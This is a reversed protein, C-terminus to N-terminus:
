AMALKTLSVATGCRGRGLFPLRGDAPRLSPTAVCNQSASSRRAKMDPASPSTRAQGAQPQGCAGVLSLRRRHRLSANPGRACHAKRSARWPLQIPRESWRAHAQCGLRENHKRLNTITLWAPQQFPILKRKLSSVCIQSLKLWPQSLLRRDPGRDRSLPADFPPGSLNAPPSPVCCLLRRRIKPVRDFTPVRLTVTPCGTACVHWRRWWCLCSLHRALPPLSRSRRPGLVEM